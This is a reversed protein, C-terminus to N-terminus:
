GKEFLFAACINHTTSFRKAVERKSINVRRGIVLNVNILRNIYSNNIGLSSGRFVMIENPLRSLNNTCSDFVGQLVKKTEKKQGSCTDEFHIFQLCFFITKLLSKWQCSIRLTTFYILFDGFYTKKIKQRSETRFM